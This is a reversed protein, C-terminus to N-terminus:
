SELSDTKSFDTLVFDESKAYLWYTREDLQIFTILTYKKKESTKMGYRRFVTKQPFDVKKTKSNENNQLWQYGIPWKTAKLALYGHVSLCVSLCVFVYMHACVCVCVCVFWNGYGESWFPLQWKTMQVAEADCVMNVM